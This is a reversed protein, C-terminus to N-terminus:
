PMPVAEPSHEDEAAAAPRSNLIPECSENDYPTDAPSCAQEHLSYLHEETHPNGLAGRVPLHQLAAVAACLNVELTVPLQFLTRDLGADARHRRHHADHVFHVLAKQDRPRGTVLLGTLQLLLVCLAMAFGSQRKVWLGASLWLMICVPLQWCALMIGERFSFAFGIVVGLFASPVCIGLRLLHNVRITKSKKTM